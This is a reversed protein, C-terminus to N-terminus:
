ASQLGIKMSATNELLKKQKNVDLYYEYDYFSFYNRQEIDKEVNVFKVTKGLCAYCMSVWEKVSIREDNGVNIIHDKPHLSIIQEILRCLDEVHFFQLKMNGNNPIYFPRDFRACDFVFTEWYVNNMPGYLYPPRLIYANPVRELLSKEAEIKDTGYKGWYKNKGLFSDGKYLQVTTEPYVASSSILIYEDFSGLAEYLDIIDKADYATVDVVADFHYSKLKKDLQHRDAEILHVGEVQSKTNRNLVYVEYDHEHFYKAVYKSVFVSGGTILIRKMM